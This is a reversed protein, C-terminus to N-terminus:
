SKRCFALFKSVDTAIATAEKKSGKLHDMFDQFTFHNLDLMASKQHNPPASRSRKRQRRKCPM